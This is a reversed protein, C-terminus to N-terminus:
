CKKDFLGLVSSAAVLYLCKWWLEDLNRAFCVEVYLGMNEYLYLYIEIGLQNICILSSSEFVLFFVQFYYAPNMEIRLWNFNAFAWQLQLTMEYWAKFHVGQM